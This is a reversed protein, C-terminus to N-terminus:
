LMALVTNVVRLLADAQAPTIAGAAAAQTVHERLARPETRDEVLPMGVRDLAARRAAAMDQYWLKLMTKDGALALDRVKKALRISKRGIVYDVAVASAHVRRPRGAPNGSQGKVWPRGRPQKRDPPESQPALEAFPADEVPERQDLVIEAYETDM